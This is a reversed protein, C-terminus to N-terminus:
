AAEGELYFRRLQEMDITGDNRGSFAIRGDRLIHIEDALDLALAVNQEVLLIALGRARLRRVTAATEGVAKPSLAASPEDLLLMRPRSMLARAVALMQREGGSLLAAAAHRRERLRPFLAFMEALDAAVGARDRRRHFAGLLINEEVSMAGFVEKGQPVLCLGAAAMLHAPHGDIRAGDLRVEGASPRVLGAIVKLATSKGTGNGGLLGLIGGDPVSFSLGHLIRTRGYGADINRVELM